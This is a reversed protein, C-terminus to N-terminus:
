QGVKKQTNLVGIELAAEIVGRQAGILEVGHFLEGDQHHAVLESSNDSISVRRFNLIEDRECSM